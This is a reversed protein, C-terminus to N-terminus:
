AALVPPGRHRLALLLRERPRPRFISGALVLRTRPVRVAPVPEAVTVFRLLASGALRLTDFLGWFAREGCVLALATVMGAAVHAAIMGADLGGAHTAAAVSDLAAHHDTMGVIGPTGTSHTMGAMSHMGARDNMARMGSAGAPPPAIRQPGATAFVGHLLAQSAAVAVVLRSPSLARGTLALCFVLTLAFAVLLLAPHPANGGAAAHSMATVLTSVSATVAARALRAARTDM